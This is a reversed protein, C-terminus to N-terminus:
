KVNEGFAGCSVFCFHELETAKVFVTQQHIVEQSPMTHLQQFNLRFRSEKWTRKSHKCLFLAHGISEWAVQCLPCCASTIIKRRHLGSAVPLANFYARWVFIKIKYASIIVM